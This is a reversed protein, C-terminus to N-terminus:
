FIKLYEKKNKILFFVFKKLFLKIIKHKKIYKM